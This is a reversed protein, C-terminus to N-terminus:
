LRVRLSASPVTHTCPRWPSSPLTQSIAPGGPPHWVTVGPPWLSCTPEPGRRM